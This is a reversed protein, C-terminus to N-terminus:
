DAQESSSCWLCVTEQPLLSDFQHSAQWLAGAERCFELPMLLVCLYATRKGALILRGFEQIMQIGDDPPFLLGLLAIFLIEIFKFIQVPTLVSKELGVGLGLRSLLRLSQQTWELSLERSLVALPELMKTFAM